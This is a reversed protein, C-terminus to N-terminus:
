VFGTGISMVDCAEGLRYAKLLGVAKAGIRVLMEAQSDMFHSGSIMDKRTKLGNLILEFVGNATLEEVIADVEAMRGEAAAYAEVIRRAVREPRNRQRHARKALIKEQEEIPLAYFKDLKKKQYEERAKQRRIDPMAPIPEPPRIAMSDICFQIVKCAETAPGKCLADFGPFTEERHKDNAVKEAEEIIWDMFGEEIFRRAVRERNIGYHRAVGETVQEVFKARIKGLRKERREQARYDAVAEPGDGRMWEPIDANECWFVSRGLCYGMFAGGPEDPKKGPLVWYELAKDIDEISIVNRLRTDVLIAKGKMVEEALTNLDALEPNMVYHVGTFERPLDEAWMDREKPAYGLEKLAWEKAREIDQVWVRKVQEAIEDETGRMIPDLEGSRRWAKPYITLPVELWCEKKTTNLKTGPTRVVLKGFKAGAAGAASLKYADEKSMEWALFGRQNFSHCAELNENKNITMGNIPFEKEELGRKVTLPTRPWVRITLLLEHQYRDTWEM